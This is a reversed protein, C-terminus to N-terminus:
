LWRKKTILLPHELSSLNPVVARYCIRFSSMNQHPLSPSTIFHFSMWFFSFSGFESCSKCDVEHATYHLIFVFKPLMVNKVWSIHEQWASMVWQSHQVRCPFSNFDELSRIHIQFRWWKRFKEKGASPFCILWLAWSQIIHLAWYFVAHIYTGIIFDLWKVSPADQKNKWSVWFSEEKEATIM